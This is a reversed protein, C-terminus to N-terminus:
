TFKDSIVEKGFADSTVRKKRRPPVLPPPPMDLKVSNEPIENSSVPMAACKAQAEPSTVDANHSLLASNRAPPAPPSSTPRSLRHASSARPSKANEKPRVITTEATNHPTVATSTQDDTSPVSPQPDPLATGPLQKNLAECSRTRDLSCTSGRTSQILDPEAVDLIVTTAPPSAISEVNSVNTSAAIVVNSEDAPQTCSHLAEALGDTDYTCNDSPGRMSDLDPTVQIEFGETNSNDALFRELRYHREISSNVLNDLAEDPECLTQDQGAFGTQSNLQGQGALDRARQVGPSLESPPQPSTRNPTSDENLLKRM